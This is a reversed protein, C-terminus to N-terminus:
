GSDWEKWRETKEKHEGGDRQKKAAVDEEENGKIDTHAPIWQLCIPIDRTRLDDICQTITQM